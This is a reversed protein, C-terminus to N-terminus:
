FRFDIEQEYQDTLRLGSAGFDKAAKLLALTRPDNMVDGHQPLSEVNSFMPSFRLVAARENPDILHLESAGFSRVAEILGMTEAGGLTNGVQPLADVDLSIPPGSFKAPRPMEEPPNFSGLGKTFVVMACSIRSIVLALVSAFLVTMM